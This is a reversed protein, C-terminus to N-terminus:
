SEGAQAVEALADDFKESESLMVNIAMPSLKVWISDPIPAPIEGIRKIRARLVLLAMKTPSPILKYDTIVNGKEDVGVPVQICKEAHELCEAYQVGTLETLEVETQAIGDIKPGDPIEFLHSAM